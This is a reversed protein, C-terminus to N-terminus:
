RVKLETDLGSMGEGGIILTQFSLDEQFEINITLAIGQM